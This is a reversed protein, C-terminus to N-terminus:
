KLSGGFLYFLLALAMMLCIFAGMAMLIGSLTLYTKQRRTLKRSM